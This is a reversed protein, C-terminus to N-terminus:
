GRDRQRLGDCHVESVGSRLRCRRRRQSGKEERERRDIERQESVSCRARGVVLVLLSSVCLDKFINRPAPPLVRWGLPSGVPIAGPFPLVAGDSDPDRQNREAESETPHAHRHHSAMGKHLTLARCSAPFIELIEPDGGYPLLPPLYLPGPVIRAHCRRAITAATPPLSSLPPHSLRALTVCISCTGYLRLGLRRTSNFGSAM